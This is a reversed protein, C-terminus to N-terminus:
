RDRGPRGSELGANALEGSRLISISHDVLDVEDPAVVRERLRDQGPSKRFAGDAEFILGHCKRSRREGVSADWRTRVRGVQHTPQEEEDDEEAATHEHSRTRDIEETV